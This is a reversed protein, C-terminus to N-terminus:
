LRDCDVTDRCALDMTRVADRIGELMVGQAFVFLLYVVGTM